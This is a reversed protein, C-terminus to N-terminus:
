FSVLFGASAVVEGSKGNVAELELRRGEVLDFYMSGRAAPNAEALERLWEFLEAERGTPLAIGKARAVAAVIEASLRLLDQGSLDGTETDTAMQRGRGRGTAQAGKGAWM